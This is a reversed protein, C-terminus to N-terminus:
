CVGERGAKQTALSVGIVTIGNLLSGVIVPDVPGSLKFVMCLISSAMGMVMGCTLGQKTAKKWYLLAVLPFFMAAGYLTATYSYMKMIQPIYLAAILAIASWVVTAVRSVKLIQEDTADPKLYAYLDYGTIKGSNQVWITATSLVVAMLAVISLGRIATPFMSMFMYTLIGEPNEVNSYVPIIMLTSILILGPVIFYAIIGGYHGNRATKADKAALSNGVYAINTSATFCYKVITGVTASVSIGTFWGKYSDPLAALNAFSQGVGGAAKFTFVPLCIVFIIALIFFNFTGTYTSSYLGGRFVTFVMVATLVTVIIKYDIEVKLMSCVMSFMNGLGIIQTALAPVAFLLCATSAVLQTRLGCSKGFVDAIGNAGTAYLRKSMFALLVWGINWGIIQWYASLGYKYTEAALGITGVSGIAAGALSGIMVIIGLSHSSTTFDKANKVKKSAYVGVGVLVVIYLVVVLYDLVGFM